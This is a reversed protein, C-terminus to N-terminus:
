IHLKQLQFFEWIIDRPLFLEHLVHITFKLGSETVLCLRVYLFIQSSRSLVNASMFWASVLVSEVGVHKKRRRVCVCMHVYLRYVCM